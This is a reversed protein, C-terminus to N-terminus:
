GVKRASLSLQRFTGVHGDTGVRLRATVVDGVALTVGKAIALGMGNRAAAAPETKRGENGVLTGNKYIGLDLVASNSSIVDGSAAEIDYIGAAQPKAVTLTGAAPVWVLGAESNNRREAFATGLITGPTAAAAVTIALGSGARDNLGAEFAFQEIEHNKGSM